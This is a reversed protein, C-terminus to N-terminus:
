SSRWSSIHLLPSMKYTCIVFSRISKFNECRLIYLIGDKPIHRRTARFLRYVHILRCSKMDWFLTSNKHIKENHFKTWGIKVERKPRSIRVVRKKLVTLRINAKLASTERIRMITIVWSLIIITAGQKYMKHNNVYTHTHVFVFTKSNKM